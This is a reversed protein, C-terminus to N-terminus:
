ECILYHTM